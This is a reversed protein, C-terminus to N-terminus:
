LSCGHVHLKWLPVANSRFVHQCINAMNGILSCPVHPAVNHILLCSIIVINIFSTLLVPSGFGESSTQSSVRNGKSFIAAGRIREAAVLGLSILPCFLWSQSGSGPPTVPPSGWGYLPGMNSLPGHSFWTPIANGPQIAPLPFDIRRQCPTCWTWRSNSAFDLVLHLDAGCQSCPTASHDPISSPDVARSCDM